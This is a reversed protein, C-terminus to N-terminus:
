QCPWDQHYRSTLDCRINICNNSIIWIACVEGHLLWWVTNRWVLQGWDWGVLVEGRGWNIRTDVLPEEDRACRVLLFRLWQPDECVWLRIRRKNGCFNDYVQRSPSAHYKVLIWLWRQTVIHSAAMNMEYIKGFTLQYYYVWIATNIWYRIM